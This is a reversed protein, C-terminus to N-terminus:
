DLQHPFSALIQTNHSANQGCVASGRTLPMCWGRSLAINKEVFCVGCRCRAVLARAYLLRTCVTSPPAPPPLLKQGGGVGGAQTHRQQCANWRFRGGGGGGRRHVPCPSALCVAAPPPLTEWGCWSLPM